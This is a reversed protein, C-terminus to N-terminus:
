EDEEEDEDEKDEEVDDDGLLHLFLLHNAMRAAKSKKVRGGSNWSSIPKWNHDIISIM